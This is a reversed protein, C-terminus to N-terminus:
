PQDDQACGFASDALRAFGFRGAPPLWLMLKWPVTAEDM